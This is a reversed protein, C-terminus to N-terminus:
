ISMNIKTWCYNNKEPSIYRKRVIDRSKEFEADKIKSSVTWAVGIIKHNYSMAVVDAIKNVLLDGTVEATKQIVM